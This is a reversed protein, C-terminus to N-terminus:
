RTRPNYAPQQMMTKLKVSPICINTMLLKVQLSMEVIM